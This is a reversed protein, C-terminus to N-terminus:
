PPCSTGLTNSDRNFVLFAGEYVILDEQLSTISSTKVLCFDLDSRMYLVSLKVVFTLPLLMCISVYM